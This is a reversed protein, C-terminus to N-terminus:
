ESEKDSDYGFDWEECLHKIAKWEDENPLYGKQKPRIVGGYATFNKGLLSQEKNM